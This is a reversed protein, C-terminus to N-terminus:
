YKAIDRNYSFINVQFKSVNNVIFLAVWIIIGLMKISYHGKKQCKYGLTPVWTAGCTICKNTHHKSKKIPPKCYIYKSDCNDPM